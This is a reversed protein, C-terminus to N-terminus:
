KERLRVYLATLFLTLTRSSVSLDSIHISRAKSLDHAVVSASRANQRDTHCCQKFCNSTGHHNIKTYVYNSCVCVCVCVFVHILWMQPQLRTPYNKCSPIWLGSKFTQRILIEYEFHRWLYPTPYLIAFIM